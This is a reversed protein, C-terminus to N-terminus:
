KRKKGATAVKMGHLPLLRFTKSTAPTKTCWSLLLGYLVTVVPSMWWTGVLPQTLLMTFLFSLLGVLILLNGITKFTYWFLLAPVRRSADDIREAMQEHWLFVVGGISFLILLALYMEASFQEAGTSFKKLVGYVAPLAGATMMGIGVTQLVVCYLAKIASGIRVGPSLLCPILAVAITLMVALPFLVLVLLLPFLTSVNVATPIMM